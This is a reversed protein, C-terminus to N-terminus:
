TPHLKGVRNGSRGSRFLQPSGTRDLPMQASVCSPRSLRVCEARPGYVNAKYNSTADFPIAHAAWKGLLREFLCLRIFLFVSKWTTSTPCFPCCAFAANQGLPDTKCRYQCMPRLYEQISKSHYGPHQNTPQNTPQMLSSNISHLRNCPAGEAANCYPIERATKGPHMALVHYHSLLACPKGTIVPSM